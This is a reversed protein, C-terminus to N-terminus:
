ERQAKQKEGAQHRSGVVVEDLVERAVVEVVLEVEESTGIGSLTEDVIHRVVVSDLVTQDPVLANRGPSNVGVSVEVSITGATTAGRHAHGALVGEGVTEEDGVNLVHRLAGATDPGGKPGKTLGAIPRLRALNVDDLESVEGVLVLNRAVGHRATGDRAGRLAASNLARIARYADIRGM